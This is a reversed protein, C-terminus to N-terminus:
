DRFGEHHLPTNHTHKYKNTLSHKSQSKSNITYLIYSKTILESIRGGLFFFQRPFIVSAASALRPNAEERRHTRHVPGEPQWGVVIHRPNYSGVQRTYNGRRHCNDTSPFGPVEFVITWAGTLYISQLLFRCPLHVAHSTVEPKACMRTTDSAMGEGNRYECTAIGEVAGPLM